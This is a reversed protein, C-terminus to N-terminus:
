TNACTASNFLIPDVDFTQLQDQDQMLDQLYSFRLAIACTISEAIVFGKLGAFPFCSGCAELSMWSIM